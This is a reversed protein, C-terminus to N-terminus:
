RAGRPGRPQLSSLQPKLSSASPELPGRLACHRNTAGLRTISAGCSLRHSDCRTVAVTNPPTTTQTHYRPKPITTHTHHPQTTTTTHQLRPPCDRGVPFPSSPVLFSHRRPMFSYHIVVPSLSCDTPSLLLLFPSPPSPSFLTFLCFPNSHPSSSAWQISSRCATISSQIIDTLM